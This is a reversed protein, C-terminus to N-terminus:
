RKRDERIVLTSDSHLREHRMEKERKKLLQLLERQKVETELYARVKESWNIKYKKLKSQLKDPIRFTMLSSM